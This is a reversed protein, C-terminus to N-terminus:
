GGRKRASIVVKGFVEAVVNPRKAWPIARVQNKAMARMIKGKTSHFRTDASRTDSTPRDTRCHRAGTRTKTPWLM